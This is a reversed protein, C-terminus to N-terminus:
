CPREPSKGISATAPCEVLKQLILKAFAEPVLAHALLSTFLRTAKVTYKSKEVHERSIDGLDFSSDEFLANLYPTLAM